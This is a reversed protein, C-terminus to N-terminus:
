TGRAGSASKTAQRPSLKRQQQQRQQEQAIQQQLHHMAVGRRHRMLRVLSSVAVYAAVGWLVWEWREMGLM